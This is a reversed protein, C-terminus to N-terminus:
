HFDYLYRKAVIECHLVFVVTHSCQKVRYDFLEAALTMIMLVRQQDVFQDSRVDESVGSVPAISRRFFNGKMRFFLYSLNLDFKRARYYILHCM